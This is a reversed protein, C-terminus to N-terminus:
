QVAWGIILGAWLMGFLCLVGFADAVWPWVRRFLGRRRPFVAPATLRAADRPGDLPLVTPPVPNENEIFNAHLNIQKAIIRLGRACEPRSTNTAIELALDIAQKESLQAVQRRIRDAPCQYSTDGCSRGSSAMGNVRQADYINRLELAHRTITDGLHAVDAFQEPIRINCAIEQIFDLQEDVPMQEIGAWSLSAPSVIM